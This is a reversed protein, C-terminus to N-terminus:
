VGSPPERRLVSVAEAYEDKALWSPQKEEIRMWIAGDDPTRVGHQVNNFFYREHGQNQEIWADAINEARPRPEDARTASALLVEVDAASDDIAATPWPISLLGDKDVPPVPFAVKRHFLDAWGQLWPASAAQNRFLLGVCGWHRRAAISGSEAYRDEAKWLEEAEFLLAALDLIDHKCPVLVGPGSPGHNDFTMTFCNGWGVSHRGYRIPVKVRVAHDLMLRSKRWADRDPHWLLSGIILIGGRMIDKRAQHRVVRAIVRSSSMAKNRPGLIRM